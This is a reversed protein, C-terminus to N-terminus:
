PLAEEAMPIIDARDGDNISGCDVGNMSLVEIIGSVLEAQAEAGAMISMIHAHDYADYHRFKRRRDWEDRTKTSGAYIATYGLLGEVQPHPDISAEGCALALVRGIVAHGAEHVATVADLPTITPAPESVLADSTTM